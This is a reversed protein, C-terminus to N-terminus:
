LPRNNWFGIDETSSRPWRHGQSQGRFSKEALKFSGIAFLTLYVAYKANKVMRFRDATIITTNRVTNSVTQRQITETSIGLLTRSLQFKCIHPWTSFLGETLSQLLRKELKKKDRKLVSKGM